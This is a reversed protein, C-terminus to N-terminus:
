VPAPTKTCGAPSSAPRGPARVRTQAARERPTCAASRGPVLGRISGLWEGVSWATLLALTIPLADVFAGGLRRRTALAFLLRGVQVALIAPGAAAGLLARGRSREVACQRGFAFGFRLRDSIAERLAYRRVHTALADPVNVASGHPRSAHRHVQTEHLGLADSAALAVRRRAAFNNGALRAASSQSRPTLFFAYECFFVAWDVASGGSLPEVPGTAAMISPDFFAKRWADIWGPALVCSDETFAVLEGTARELGLRRLRPVDAGPEAAIWVREQDGLVDPIQDRDAVIIVEVPEACRDVALSAVCRAVAEASDSAAVVVSLRLRDSL